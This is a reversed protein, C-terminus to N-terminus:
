IRCLNPVFEARKSGAPRGGSAQARAPRRGPPSRVSEVSERRPGKGLRNGVHSAPPARAREAESFRSASKYLPGEAGSRELSFRPKRNAGVAAASCGRSPRPRACRNSLNEGQTRAPQRFFLLFFIYSQMDGRSISSSSSSSSDSLRSETYGSSQM